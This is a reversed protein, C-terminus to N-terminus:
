RVCYGAKNDDPQGPYWNSHIVIFKLMVLLKQLIIIVLSTLYIRSPFHNAQDPGFTVQHGGNDRRGILM